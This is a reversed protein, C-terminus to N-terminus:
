NSLEKGSVQHIPLKFKIESDDAQLDYLYFSIAWSNSILGNEERNNDIVLLGSCAGITNGEKISGEMVFVLGDSYHDGLNIPFAPYIATEIKVRDRHYRSWTFQNHDNAMIMFSWDGELKLEGKEFDIFVKMLPLHSIAIHHKDSGALAIANVPISYEFQKLLQTKKM